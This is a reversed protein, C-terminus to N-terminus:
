RHETDGWLQERQTDDSFPHNVSVDHIERHFVGLGVAKTEYAQDRNEGEIRLDQCVGSARLPPLRIVTDGNSPYQACRDSARAHWWSNRSAVASSEVCVFMRM